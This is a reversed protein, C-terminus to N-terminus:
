AAMREIIQIRAVAPSIVEGYLPSALRDAILSLYKQRDSAGYHRKCYALWEVRHAILEEHYRFSPDTLYKNWWAEPDAGQRESHAEEHKVLQPKIVVKDPNYIVPGHCFLVGKRQALDPFVKVIKEWNPPREHSIKM